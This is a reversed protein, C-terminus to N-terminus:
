TKLYFKKFNYLGGVINSIEDAIPLRYRVKDAFIRNFKLHGIVHEVRVRVSSIAKNTTKEAYTLPIKPKKKIPMVIKINTGLTDIAKYGLDFMGTSDPPARLLYYSEDAITKDNSKGLQVRGIAILKKDPTIIIQRKITHRKKKGSYYEKQNYKPRNIPQETADTIHEKLEPIIIFLEEISNCKEAPLPIHHKVTNELARMGLKIWHHLNSKDLQFIGELVDFTPYAKLYFLVLFLLRSAKFFYKPKAGGGVSRIRDKLSDYKLLELESEFKPLLAKFEDLNTNIFAKIRRESTIIYEYNIM